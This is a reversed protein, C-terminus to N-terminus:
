KTNKKGYEFSVIKEDSSNLIIKTDRKVIAMKALISRFGLVQIAILPTMAVLAVVGFADELINGSNIVSCVGIALPLIFSSTLPGSAVGGSDFAIATYMKPVFFSLGLSIAYGIALFYILSINFQIRLMTLLLAIGEGIALAILMTKRSIGGTTVNEVQKTLVHIAPEAIVTLMGLIFTFIFLLAKHGALSVGLKFGIPLYGVSASSLFIVLGIFTYFIGGLIQLLKKKSLKIFILEIVIFFVFILGLSLTVEKIISFQKSLFERGITEENILYDNINLDINPQNKMFIGVLLTVIIPGISCLAILGFSNEKANRGGIASSIGLGLAMIFPVTIPGTTVGGSDFSLSLFSGNGRIIMIAAIAFLAFYFYIMLLSLDKKFIIKLVAIVLFIGVGIGVFLILLIPNIISSVQNALVSLDPEAVTILVGMIFCIISILLIKKTKILSTGVFEGMPSMAREAGLNFLSIGIILGITSLIFVIIEAKTLDFLPTFSLILVILMLPLVSISSEKLKILLNRIM